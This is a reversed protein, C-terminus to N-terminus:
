GPLVISRVADVPALFAAVSGGLIPIYWWKSGRTILKWEAAVLAFFRFGRAAAPLPTLHVNLDLPPPTTATVLSEATTIRKSRRRSKAGRSAARSSPDFRDFPIAAVTGVVLGLLVWSFRWGLHQATWSIGDWSYTKLVWKGEVRINFGMSVSSSDPDFEPYAADAADYMSPLAIGVGLPDNHPIKPDGEFNSALLFSWLIIWAINGVGGRLVPMVEFFVAFAGTMLMFPLTLLIFPAFLAVLDISRDEARFLQMGICSVAVVLTMAALVAFNSFTKALVYQVRSIPTTALIEGVRTRRDREVANKVVFFGVMSIFVTCLMAVATGIWASNYVGRYEGLKLTAYSSPNPPLFLYAAYVSFLLAVLFGHRRVRELFDARALHYLRYLNM